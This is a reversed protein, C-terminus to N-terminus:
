KYIHRKYYKGWASCGGSGNKKVEKKSIGCRLCIEKNKLLKKLEKGKIIKLM